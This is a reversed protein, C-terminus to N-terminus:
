QRTIQSSGAVPSVNKRASAAMPKTVSTLSDLQRAFEALHIMRDGFATYRLRSRLEPDLAQGGVIVAARVNTAVEHFSLYERLFHDQDSLFNISLAVLKPRFQVTADALSRLPLNVGLNRM